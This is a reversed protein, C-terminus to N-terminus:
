EEEDGTEDDVEREKYFNEEAERDCILLVLSVFMFILSCWAAGFGFGFEWVRRNGSIRL